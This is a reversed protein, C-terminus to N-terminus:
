IASCCDGTVYCPLTQLLKFEIDRCLGSQDLMSLVNQLVRIFSNLCVCVCWKYLVNEYTVYKCHTAFPTARAKALTQEPNTLGSYPLLAPFLCFALESQCDNTLDLLDDSTM